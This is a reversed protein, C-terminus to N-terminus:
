CGSRSGAPRRARHRGAARRRGRGPPGSGRRRRRRGLRRPPRRWALRSVGAPAPPGFGFALVPAHPAAAVRRPCTPSIRRALRCRRCPIPRPSPDQTRRPVPIGSGTVVGTRAGSKAARAGSDPALVAPLDFRTGNQGRLTAFFGQVPDMQATRRRERCRCAATLPKGTCLLCSGGRGVVGPPFRGGRRGRRRAARGWAGMGAETATGWGSSSRCWRGSGVRASGAGM